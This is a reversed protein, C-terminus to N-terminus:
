RIVFGGYSLIAEELATDDDAPIPSLLTKQLQWLAKAPDSSDKLSRYFAKMFAGTTDDPIVWLSAMVHRVGAKKFGRQLGLLGEGFFPRGMASRCTSLVVLQTGRLNLLAAEEPFLLGDNQADPSLLIAHEYLLSPDASLDSGGDLSVQLGHSALHLISPSRLDHLATETAKENLLSTSGIPALNGLQRLEQAIAPLDSLDQLASRWANTWSGESAGLGERHPAFKSVGIMTWAPDSPDTRVSDLLSRGSTALKLSPLTQCLFRDDSSRLLAYPLLHLDGAPSLLIEKSDGPLVQAIPQWFKRYLNRLLGKMALHSSGKGTRLGEARAAISQRLLHLTSLSAHPALPIWRPPGTPAIVIAGYATKSSQNTPRYRVCDVYTQFPSLSKQIEQWRLPEAQPPLPPAAMKRLEAQLTEIRSNDAPESRLLLADLDAQLSERDRNSNARTRRDLVAQMILGKGNLVSNAIQEPDGLRCLLSHLDVQHRFTLLERESGHQLLSGLLRGAVSRATAAAEPARESELARECDAIQYLIEVLLQHHDSIAAGKLINRAERLHSLAKEYDGNTALIGGLNALQSATAPHTALGNERLLRVAARLDREAEGPRNLQSLIAGSLNLLDALSEPPVNAEQDLLGEILTLADMPRGARLRCLALNSQLEFLLPDTGSVGQEALTIATEFHTTASEYARLALFYRGLCDHRSSRSWPDQNSTHELAAHLLRGAEAYRGQTLLLMGLHQESHAREILATEWDGEARLALGKRLHNEALQWDGHHQLSRGLGDHIFAISSHDAALPCAPLLNLALQYPARAEEDRNWETLGWGLDSLSWIWEWLRDDDPATLYTEAADQAVVQLKGLDPKPSAKPVPQAVPPDDAPPPPASSTSEEGCASLAVAIGAAWLRIPPFM